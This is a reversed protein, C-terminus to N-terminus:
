SLSDNRALQSLITKEADSLQEDLQSLQSVKKNLSSSSQSVEFSSSSIAFVVCKGLRRGISLCLWSFAHIAPSLLAPSIYRQVIKAFFELQYPQEVYELHAARTVRTITGM